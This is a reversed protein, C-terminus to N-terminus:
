KENNGIAPNSNTILTHSGYLKVINHLSAIHKKKQFYSNSKIMRFQIKKRM